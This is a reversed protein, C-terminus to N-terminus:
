CVVLEVVGKNGSKDDFSILDANNSVVGINNTNTMSINNNTITNDSGGSTSNKNGGTTVNFSLNNTTTTMNNNVNSVVNSNPKKTSEISLGTTATVKNEAKENKQTETGIFSIKETKEIVIDV